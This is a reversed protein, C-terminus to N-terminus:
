QSHIWDLLLQASPIERSPKRSGQNSAWPQMHVLLPIGRHLSSHAHWSHKMYVGDVQLEDERLTTVWDGTLDPFWRPIARHHWPFGVKRTNARSTPFLTLFSFLCPRHFFSLHSGTRMLYRRCGRWLLQFIGEWPSRRCCTYPSPIPWRQSQSSTREQGVQLTWSPSIGQLSHCASGITYLFHLCLLHKAGLSSGDSKCLLPLLSCPLPRNWAPSVNDFTTDPPPRSLEHLEAPSPTDRNSWPDSSLLVWPKPLSTWFCNPPLQLWPSAVLCVKHRHPHAKPHLPPSPHRHRPPRVSTNRSNDRTNAKGLTIELIQREKTRQSNLANPNSDCLRHVLGATFVRQDAVLSRTSMWRLHFLVEMVSDCRM